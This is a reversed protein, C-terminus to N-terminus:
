QLQFQAALKSNESVPGLRATFSNVPQLRRGSAAAAPAQQIRPVQRNHNSRHLFPLCPSLISRKGTKESKFIRLRVDPTRPHHAKDLIQGRQLDVSFRGSRGVELFGSLGRGSMDLARGSLGIDVMDRVYDFSRSSVWQPPQDLLGNQGERDLSFTDSDTLSGDEPDHYNDSFLLEDNESDIVSIVAKHLAVRSDSQERKGASSESKAAEQFVFSSAIPNEFPFDEEDVKARADEQRRNKMNNAQEMDPEHLDPEASVEMQLRGSCAFVSSKRGSGIEPWWSRGSNLESRTGKRVARSRITGGDYSMTLSAPMIADVKGRRNGKKSYRGPVTAHHHQRRVITSVTRLPKQVLSLNWSSSNSSWREHTPKKKGHVSTYGEVVPLDPHYPNDDPELWAVESPGELDDDDIADETLATISMLYQALQSKPRPTTPDVPGVQAAVISNADDSRRRLSKRKSIGRLSRESSTPSQPVDLTSVPSVSLDDGGITIFDSHADLNGSLDDEKSSSERLRSQGVLKKFIRETFDNTGSASAEHEPTLLNSDFTFHAANLQCSNPRSGPNPCPYLLGSPTRVSAQPKGNNLASLPQTFLLGSDGRSSKPPMLPSSPIDIKSKRQEVHRGPESEWKFPRSRFKESLMSSMSSQRSFFLGEDDDSIHVGMLSSKLNLQVVKPEHPESEDASDVHRESLSPKEPQPEWRSYSGMGRSRVSNSVNGYRFGPRKEEEIQMMEKLQEM